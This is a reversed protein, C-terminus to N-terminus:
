WLSLLYEVRFFVEGGNRISLDNKEVYNKM